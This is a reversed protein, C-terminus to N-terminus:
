PAKLLPATGQEFIKHASIFVSNLYLLVYIPGIQASM